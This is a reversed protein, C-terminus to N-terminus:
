VSFGSMVGSLEKEVFKRILDLEEQSESEFRLVLMPGTNSARVLAWGTEFVVRIGDITILERIKPNKGSEGAKLDEFRSVMGKVVDFKVEDPCDERIEPTSVMKPLDNLFTSLPRPRQLLIEVLRCASYIADDYGYYRDAFFIHGSMEGALAARTEKMKSKILSHGSKWM